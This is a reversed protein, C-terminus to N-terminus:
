MESFNVEPSNTWGHDGNFEHYVAGPLAAALKRAHQVPIVQDHTAGFIDLQGRYDKLAAVNNWRDLMILGVPLFTFKEKAVDELVDFPVVLVIHRPPVDARALQSAPGSGLSEGLVVIREVGYTHVLWTYAKLAAADFATRSPRGAREGYGPYELIFVSDDPNVRAVVYARNGAQGGNGHLMLWIKRPSAVIRAYGTYEGDIQWPTLGFQAAFAAAKEHTPFYLLRRQVCGVAVVFGFVVVLIVSLM